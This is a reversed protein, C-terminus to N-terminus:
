AVDREEDEWYPDRLAKKDVKGYPTLPFESTFEVSKPKKYDALRSEAFSLLASESVDAGPVAVVVAHVAEGWEQDPIGIVAVERIEPHEILVDEINTTYVNMGGSVVMDKDRDLIYVYGNEDKRGIDSTRVWGDVLTIDTKDPLNNYGAMQFPARLLIEGPKDTPRPTTDHKNETSAVRVDVMATPQGCSDLKRRGDAVHDHKHLVTGVTPVETQGYVQIFVQGFAILAEELRERAIPAGGYVVTQLSSVDTAELRSHNLIRYIMTPVVWSWTINDTELRTLFEVTDFGRTVVASVGQIMGSLLCIGAAHPLPTMLLMRDDSTIDLEIVHALLNFAFTRHTYKAGKPKGTTGGTYPIFVMDEPNIDVNLEKDRHARILPESAGMGEPADDGMMVTAELHQLRPSVASIMDLHEEGALVVKADSDSLIYEVETESLMDNLAIKVYGGRICALDAVVYGLQNSMLLGVRDGKEIGMDSLACALAGARQWAQGYSISEGNFIVLTRDQYKHCAREVLGVVTPSESTYM